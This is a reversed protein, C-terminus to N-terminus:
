KKHKYAARHFQARGQPPCPCQLSSLFMQFATVFTRRFGNPISHFLVRSIRLWKIKMKKNKEEEQKGTAPFFGRVVSVKPLRQRRGNVSGRGELLACLTMTDEPGRVEDLSLDQALTEESFGDLYPDRFYNM